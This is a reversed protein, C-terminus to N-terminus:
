LRVGDSFDPAPCAAVPGIDRCRVRRAVRWAPWIDSAM